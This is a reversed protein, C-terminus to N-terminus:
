ENKTDRQTRTPRSKKSALYAAFARLERRQAPSLRSYGLSPTSEKVPSAGGVLLAHTIGLAKAIRCCTSFSPDRKGHEIQSIAAQSLKAARALGTQSFGAAKRLETFRQCDKRSM